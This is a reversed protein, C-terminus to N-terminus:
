ISLEECKVKLLELFKISADIIESPSDDTKEHGFIIRRVTEIHESPLALESVIWKFANAHSINPSAPSNSASLFNLFCWKVSYYCFEVKSRDSRISDWYRAYTINSGDVVWKKGPVDHKEKITELCSNVGHTELLLQNLNFTSEGIEKPFKGYLDIHNFFRQSLIFPAWDSITSADNLLIQIPFAREQDSEYKIPSAGFIPKFTTSELNYAKVVEETIKNVLFYTEKTICEFCIVIDLDNPKKQDSESVVSGVVGIYFLKENLRKDHAIEKSISQAIALLYERQNEWLCKKIELLTEVLDKHSNHNINLKIKDLYNHIQKAVESDEFYLGTSAESNSAEILQINNRSGKSLPFTILVANKTATFNPFSNFLSQIGSKSSEDPPVLYLSMQSGYTDILSINSFVFYIDKPDNLCVIRDIEPRVDPKLKLLEKLLDIKPPVTNTQIFTQVLKGINKESFINEVKSRVEGLNSLIEFNSSSFIENEIAPPLEQQSHVTELHKITAKQQDITAKQNEITSKRQSIDRQTIRHYWFFVGGSLLVIASPIGIDTWDM